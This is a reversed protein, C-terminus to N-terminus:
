NKRGVIIVGYFFRKADVLIIGDRSFGGGSLVAVEFETRLFALFKENVTSSLLYVGAQTRNNVDKVVLAMFKCTFRSSAEKVKGRRSITFIVDLEKVEEVTARVQMVKLKRDGFSRVNVKYLRWNTLRAGFCFVGEISAIERIAM